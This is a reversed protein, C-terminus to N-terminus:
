QGAIQEELWTWLEEGVKADQSDARLMGNDDAYMHISLLCSPLFLARDVAGAVRAVGEASKYQREWSEDCPERDGGRWVEECGGQCPSSGWVQVTQLSGVRKTKKRAPGDKFTSFSLNSIHHAGLSVFIIRVKDQPSTKATSTLLPLFLKILYFCGLVNTGFQLDYGQKTVADKPLIMVCASNYLVDLRIEKSLFESTDLGLKLLVPSKGTEKTIKEVAEKGKIENRTAIYVKAGREVLVIIVVEITFKSKPPFSEIALSKIFDWIVSM